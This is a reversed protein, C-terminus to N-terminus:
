LESLACAFVAAILVLLALDRQVTMRGVYQHWLENPQWTVAAILAFLVYLGACAVAGWTLAFVCAYLVGVLAPVAKFSPHFLPKQPM